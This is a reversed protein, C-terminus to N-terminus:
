PKAGSKVKGRGADLELPIKMEAPPLCLSDNCAQYSLVFTPQISGRTANQGLRLRAAIQVKGEYLAVKERGSSALVKPQGAPYLIKVLSVAARSSQDLELTTPKMEPLGAPNAYVHWGNRITLTIIADLERGPELSAAGQESLCASATVVQPITPASAGPGAFKPSISGENIDLYQELGILTVPLAAPARSLMSSFARLARAADDRYSREGTIRTLALLDLIALSNGSPLASDFPEKARALLTEHGDSTFYFGGDERDEFDAIMRDVIARAERLWRVSNTAEHLRLMGHALFAYDEQYAAVKATGQRYTRFLRGDPTRLKSLLFGAAKEGAQRYKEVQLVRYADAYAAIMLGNWGTLVKDDCLPGPRKARAALLRARLPALRAELEQPTTQLSAAAEARSRPEFLVYRTAEFNPRANLGYVELFATAAPSEGLASRVEDRTWVYFAGEERNTEADLASYFGGEPSTMTREVFALTAEAEERWRADGTLEYAFLHLSVLLANDYLMKEFHPVIWYRDTSYRHYGGDLHDRIGGRAMRDLSILVMELPSLGSAGSPPTATRAGQDKGSAASAAPREHGAARAGRRHQDLLFVLDLPQPFKPRRPNAPDFGFGGCEVDFQRALENVGDRAWARALPPKPENSAARLRRRVADTVADATREIAKRQATWAKGVETVVTLFGGIGARDRPPFYSGAFFPRGDPTLFLSMPWGGPRFVQLATMYIMDVDPREERDVKISVFQANLLKAIEPDVFSEREMVHCWYCSSYGVSLFIPKGEAKARAFAEPGWPYWDVPNHAHM